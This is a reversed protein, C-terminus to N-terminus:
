ATAGADLTRRVTGALDALTFPKVLSAIGATTTREAARSADVTTIIRLTPQLARARILVHADAGRLGDVVLLETQEAAVAM